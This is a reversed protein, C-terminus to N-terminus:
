PDAYCVGDVTAATVADNSVILEDGADAIFATLPTNFIVPTQGAVGGAAIPSRQVITLAGSFITQKSDAQTSRQLIRVHHPLLVRRYQWNALPRDDVANALLARSWLFSAM